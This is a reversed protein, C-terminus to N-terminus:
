HLIAIFSSQFCIYVMSFLYVSVFCHNILVSYLYSFISFLGDNYLLLIADYSLFSFLLLLLSCVSYLYVSVFFTIFLSQFCICFYLLYVVMICYLYLLVSYFRFCICYYHVSISYLKDFTSYLNCGDSLIFLSQILFVCYFYISLSQFFFVFM